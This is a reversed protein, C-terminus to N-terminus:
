GWVTGMPCVAVDTPDLPVSEYVTHEAQNLFLVRKRFKQIYGIYTPCRGTDLMIQM